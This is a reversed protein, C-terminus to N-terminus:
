IKFNWRTLGTSKTKFKQNRQANKAVFEQACYHKRQWAFKPNQEEYMCISKGTLFFDGLM